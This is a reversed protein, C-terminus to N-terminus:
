KGHAVREMKNLREAQAQWWLLERSTLVWADRPGWSFYRTLEAILDEWREPWDRQLQGFFSLV